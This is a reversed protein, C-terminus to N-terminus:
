LVSPRLNSDQRARETTEHFEARGVRTSGEVRSPSEAQTVVRRAKHRQHCESAAGAALAALSLATTARTALRPRGLAGAALALPFGGGAARVAATPERAPREGEALYRWLGYGLWALYRAAVALLAQHGIWGSRRAAITAAARTCADALTDLDRGLRTVGARRALAGDLADSTTALLVLFAFSRPDHGARLLRPALWLRALSAADAASLRDRPEGAPGEVMGLHWRLMARVSAAWAFESRPPVAQVRGSLPPLRTAAAFLLWAGLWRDVQAVLDPRAIRTQEAREFSAAVFSAWARPRHGGARLAGLADRTWLEGATVGLAPTTDSTATVALPSCPM